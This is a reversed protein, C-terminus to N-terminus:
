KQKKIKELLKEMATVMEERNANTVYNGFEGTGVEFVMLSFMVGPLEAKIMNAIDKLKKNFEASM